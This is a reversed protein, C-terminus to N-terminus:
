HVLLGLFPKAILDKKNSVYSGISKIAPAASAKISTFVNSLSDVFGRGTIYKKKRSYGYVHNQVLM